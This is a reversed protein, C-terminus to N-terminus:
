QKLSLKLQRKTRLEVDRSTPHATEEDESRGWDESEYYWMKRINESIQQRETEIEVETFNRLKCEQERKCILYEEVLQARVKTEGQLTLKKTKLTSLISVGRARIVMCHEHLEWNNIDINQCQLFHNITESDQRNITADGMNKQNAAM